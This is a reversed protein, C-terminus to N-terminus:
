PVLGEIKRVAMDYADAQPGIGWGHAGDAIREVTISRCWFRPVTWWPHQGGDFGQYARDEVIRFGARERIAPWTRDSMANMQGLHQGVLQQGYRLNRVV